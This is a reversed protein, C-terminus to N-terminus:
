ESTYNQPFEELPNYNVYGGDIYLREDLIAAQHGFRRCFNSVPDGQQLSLQAGLLLILLLPLM